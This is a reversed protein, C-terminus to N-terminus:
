QFNRYSNKTLSLRFHSFAYLNGSNLYMIYALKRITIHNIYVTLLYILYNLLQVFIGDFNFVAIIASLNM